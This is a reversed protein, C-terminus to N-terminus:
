PGLFQGYRLLRLTSCRLVRLVESACHMAAFTSSSRGRGFSRHRTCPGRRSICAGGRGPSTLFPLCFRVVKYIKCRLVRFEKVLSRTRLAPTPKHVRVSNQEENMCVKAQVITTCPGDTPPGARRGWPDHRQTARQKSLRIIGVSHLLGNREQDRVGRRREHFHLARCLKDQISSESM